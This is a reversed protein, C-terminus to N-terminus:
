RGLGGQWNLVVTAPSTESQTVVLIRQGDRTVSYQYVVSSPGFPTRTQFLKEPQSVTPNPGDSVGVSMLAGGPSMYFLERGDGRWHPYNGGATSIRIKQGKESYPQLFIENDGLEDSAYAVLNGNPSVRANHQHGTGEILPRTQPSRAPAYEWIDHGEAGRRSFLVPGEPGVWHTPWDSVQRDLEVAFFPSPEESGHADLVFITGRDEKTSSILLRQSDPSWIPVRDLHDPHFTRLTLVGRVVDLTWTDAHGGEPIITLAATKEDPSLRVFTYLDPPGLAGLRKGQRDFWVLESVGFLGTSRKYALVGSLSVSFSARLLSYPRTEVKQAIPVPGSGTAARRADFPQALLTQDQLFLLYGQDAATYQAASDAELVFQHSSSPEEALDAAFIAGRRRGEQPSAFLFRGEDFFVPWRHSSEGPGLRSAPQPDGGQAPIRYLPGTNDPTFLITGGQWDSWAGGRFRPAEALSRTIGRELDVTKLESDAAFGLQKGDPSWFPFRANNTGELPRAEASDLERVFLIESSDRRRGLAVLKSGDPSVAVGGGIYAPVFRAQEPLRIEFQIPGSFGAVPGDKSTTEKLAWVLALICAAAWPAYSRFLHRTSAQPAQDKLAQFTRLRRKPVLEESSVAAAVSQQAPGGPDMPLGARQATIPEPDEAGIAYLVAEQRESLPYIFRYGRRPVTEM